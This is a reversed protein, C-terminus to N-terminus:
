RVWIKIGGINDKSLKYSDLYYVKGQEQKLNINNESVFEKFNEPNDFGISYEKTFKNYRLNYINEKEEIQNLFPILFMGSILVASILSLSVIELEQKM